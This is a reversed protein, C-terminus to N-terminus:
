EAKYNEVWKIVEAVTLGKAEILEFVERTNNKFQQAKLENM